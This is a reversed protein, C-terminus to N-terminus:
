DQGSRNSGSLGPCSFGPASFLENKGESRDAAEGFFIPDFRRKLFFFEVSRACKFINKYNTVCFLASFSFISIELKKVCFHTQRGVMGGGVLFDLIVGM